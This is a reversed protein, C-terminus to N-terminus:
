DLTDVIDIERLRELPSTFPKSKRPTSIGLVNWCALGSRKNPM